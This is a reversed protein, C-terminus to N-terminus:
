RFGQEVRDRVRDKLKKLDRETFGKPLQTRLEEPYLSAPGKRYIEPEWSYRPIIHAHLYPDLNGLMLYNMRLARCEIALIEGILAMAQLFRTRPELQLLHLDGIQPVPYLLVYGPLFQESAFVARISDTAILPDPEAAM